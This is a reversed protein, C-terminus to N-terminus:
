IIQYQHVSNRFIHFIVQRQAPNDGLFSDGVVQFVQCCLGLGLLPLPILSFIIGMLGCLPMNPWRRVQTRSALVVALYVGGSGFHYPFVPFRQNLRSQDKNATPERKQNPSTFCVGAGLTLILCGM